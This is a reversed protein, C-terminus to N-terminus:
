HIQVSFENILYTTFNPNEAYAMVHIFGREFVKQVFIQVMGYTQSVYYSPSGQGMYFSCSLENSEDKAQISYFSNKIHSIFLSEDIFYFNM